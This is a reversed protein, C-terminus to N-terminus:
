QSNGKEGEVKLRLGVFIFQKIHTNINMRFVIRVCFPKNYSDRSGRDFICPVRSCDPVGYLKFLDFGCLM